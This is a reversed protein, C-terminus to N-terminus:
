QPPMPKNTSYFAHYTMGGVNMSGMLIGATESGLQAVTVYGNKVPFSLGAFAGRAGEAALRAATEVLAEELARLLHSQIYGNMKAKVRIGRFVQLRPTLFSHMMEHIRALKQDTATGQTSYWYDGWIKTGGTGAAKHGKPTATPKYLLKGASRPANAVDANTLPRMNNYRQHFSRPKAKFLIAMIAQVGLMSVARAFHEASRDLDKETVAAHGEHVFYQLEEVADWGIVSLTAVGVLLLVVDIAEGIGVFHSAAWVATIGGMIALAEPTLMKELIEATEAPLLKLSRRLRKKWSKRM